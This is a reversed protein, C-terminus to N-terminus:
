NKLTVHLVNLSGPSLAVIHLGVYMFKIRKLNMKSDYWASSTLVYNTETHVQKCAQLQTIM